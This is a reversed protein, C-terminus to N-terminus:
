PVPREAVIGAALVSGPGFASRVRELAKDRGSATTFGFLREPNPVAPVGGLESLARGIRDHGSNDPWPWLILIHYVGADGGKM